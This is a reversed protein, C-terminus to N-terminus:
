LIDFVTLLRKFIVRGWGGCNVTRKNRELAMEPSGSQSCVQIKGSSLQPNLINIKNENNTSVNWNQSPAFSPEPFIFCTILSQILKKFNQYFLFKETSIFTFLYTLNQLGHSQPAKGRESGQWDSRQDIGSFPEVGCFLHQHLSLM